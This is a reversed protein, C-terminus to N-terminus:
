SIRHYRWVVLSALTLYLVPVFILAMLDKWMPEDIPFGLQGLVLSGSVDASIEGLGPISEGSSVTFNAGVLENKILGDYAFRSPTIYPLWSLAVHISKLSLFLGAFALFALMFLGGLFTAVSARSAVAGILLSACAFALNGLILFILFVLFHHMGGDTRLRTPYYVVCGLVMPPVVRLPLLDMMTEVFVYAISGYLASARERMFLAREDLFVTVASISSFGLFCVCFFILGLRNHLGELDRRDGIGYWLLAILLSAFVTVVFHVRLLLPKRWLRRLARSWLVAVQQQCSSEARLRVPYASTAGRASILAAAAKAATTSAQTSASVPAPSQADAALIATEAVTAGPMPSFHAMVQERSGFFMCRHNAGLVIVDDLSGLVAASPQHVSLIVSRSRAATACKRLLALTAAASTSDLGSLPEDLVLAGVNRSSSNVSTQQVFEDCRLIQTCLSIRRKEGGSVGRVEDSGILVDACSSLRMDALLRDVSESLLSLDTGPHRLEAVYTLHERVSLWPPLHDNQSLYAVQQQICTRDLPAGNYFIQAPGDPSVEGVLAGLLTSKGAGSSGIIGVVRGPRIIASFNSLLEEGGEKARVSLSSCVFEGGSTASAQAEVDDGVEGRGGILPATEVDREADVRSSRDDEMTGGTAQRISALPDARELLRLNQGPHIVPWNLYFNLLENQSKQESHAEKQIGLSVLRSRRRPARFM